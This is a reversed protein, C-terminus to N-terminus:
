TVAAKWHQFLNKKWWSWEQPESVASWTVPFEEFVVQAVNIINGIDLREKLMGNGDALVEQHFEDASMQIHLRPPEKYYQHPQKSIAEWLKRIMKRADDLSKAWFANTNISVPLPSHELIYLVDKMSDEYAFVEGGTIHIQQKGSAVCWDIWEQLKKADFRRTMGRDIIQCHRCNSNCRFTSVYIAINPALFEIEEMFKLYRSSRKVLDIREKEIDGYMEKRAIKHRKALNIRGKSKAGKTLNFVELVERIKDPFDADPINFKIDRDKDRCYNLVAQARERIDSMSVWQMMVNADIDGLRFAKLFDERYKPHVEQAIYEAAINIM